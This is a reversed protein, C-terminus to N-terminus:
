ARRDNGSFYKQVLEPTFDFAQARFTATFCAVQSTDTGPLVSIYLWEDQAKGWLLVQAADFGERALVPYHSLLAAQFRHRDDADLLALSDAAPLTLAPSDDICSPIIVTVQAQAAAPPLPLFLGAAALWGAASMSASAIKM